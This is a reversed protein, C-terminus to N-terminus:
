FCVYSDQYVHEGLLLAFVWKGEKNDFLLADRGALSLMNGGEGRVERIHEQLLAFAKEVTENHSSGTRLPMAKLVKTSKLAVLRNTVEDAATPDTAVAGQGGMVAAVALIFLPNM